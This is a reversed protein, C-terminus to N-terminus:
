PNLLKSYCANSAKNKIDETQQEDLGAPPEFKDCSCLDKLMILKSASIHDLLRDKFAFHAIWQFMWNAIGFISLIM